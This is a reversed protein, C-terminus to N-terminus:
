IQGIKDQKNELLFARKSPIGVINGLRYKDHLSSFDATKDSIFKDKIISSYKGSLLTDKSKDDFNKWKLLLPEVLYFPFEMCETLNQNFFLKYETITSNVQDLDILYEYVYLYKIKKLKKDSILNKISQYIYTYRIDMKQESHLDPGFLDYKLRYAKGAHIIGEPKAIDDTNNYIIVDTPAIFSDIFKSSVQKKLSKPLFSHYSLEEPNPIVGFNKTERIETMGELLTNHMKDKM